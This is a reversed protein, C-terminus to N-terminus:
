TACQPPTRSWDSRRYPNLFLCDYHRRERNKGVARLAPVASPFTTWVGNPIFSPWERSPRVIGCSPHVAAKPSRAGRIRFFSGTLNTASKRTPSATPPVRFVGHLTVNAPVSLVGDVPITRCPSRRCRRRSAAAMSNRKSCLVCDASGDPVAGARSCELARYTNACTGVHGGVARCAVSRGGCQM